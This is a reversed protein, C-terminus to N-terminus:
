KIACKPDKKEALADREIGKCIYYTAQDQITRFNKEALATLAAKVGDDMRMNLFVTKAM